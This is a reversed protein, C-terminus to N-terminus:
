KSGVSNRMRLSGSNRKIAGHQRIFVYVFVTVLICRGDFLGEQRRQGCLQNIIVHKVCVNYMPPPSSSPLDLGRYVNVYM